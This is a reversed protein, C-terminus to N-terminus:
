DSGHFDWIKDLHINNIETSQTKQSGLIQKNHPEPLLQML